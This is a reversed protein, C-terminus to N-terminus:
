EYAERSRRTLLASLRQSSKCCSSFHLWFTTVFCLAQIIIEVSSLAALPYLLPSSIHFLAAQNERNDPRQPDPSLAWSRVRPVSGRAQRRLLPASGADFFFEVNPPLKFIGLEAVVAHGEGAVVGRHTVVAQRFGFVRAFRRRGFWRLRM